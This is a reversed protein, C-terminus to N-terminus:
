LRFSKNHLVLKEEMTLKYGHQADYSKISQWTVINPASHRVIKKFTCDLTTLEPPDHRNIIREGRAEIISNITRKM